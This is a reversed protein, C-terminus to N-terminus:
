GLSVLILGKHTWRTVSNILCIASNRNTKSYCFGGGLALTLDPDCSCNCQEMSITACVAALCGIWFSNILDVVEKEGLEHVSLSSAFQKSICCDQFIRLNGGAVLSTETSIKSKNSKGLGTHWYVSFVKMSPILRKNRRFQGPIRFKWRDLM